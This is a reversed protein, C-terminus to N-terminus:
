KNMTMFSIARSSELTHYLKAVNSTLSIMRFDAPNETNLKERDVKPILIVNSMGWSEPAVGSDRILTFITALM